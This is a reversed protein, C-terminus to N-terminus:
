MVRLSPPNKEIVEVFLHTEALREGKKIVSILEYTANYGWFADCKMEFDPPEVEM